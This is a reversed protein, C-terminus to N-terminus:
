CRALMLACIGSLVDGSGATAMGSNGVLCNIAVRGDPAAIVTHAGKLVVCVQYTTAFASACGIRDEEVEAISKGCLRAMEGSHPTLVVTRKTASLLEKKQALAFLGDADIVLPQEGECLLLALLEQLATHRGAGMGFALADYGEIAKLVSADAGLGGDVSQIAFTMAETTKVEMIDMLNKPVGACVLGAGSRLAAQTSLYVAGSM